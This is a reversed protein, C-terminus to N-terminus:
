SPSGGGGFSFALALWGCVMSVGGIPTIAGLWTLGTLCLVYLSGSFIVLGALLLRGAWKIRAPHTKRGAAWAVAILGLATMMHYDVATGYTDMVDPDLRAELVHAGFAGFAVALAAAIGGIMVWRREV